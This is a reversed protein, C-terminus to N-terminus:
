KNGPFSRYVRKHSLLNSAQLERAKSGRQARNGCYKAKKENYKPHGFERSGRFGKSDLLLRHLNPKSTYPPEHLSLHIKGKVCFTQAGGFLM